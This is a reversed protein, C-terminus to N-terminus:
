FWGSLSPPKSPLVPFKNNLPPGLPNFPPPTWPAPPTSPKSDKRALQIEFEAENLQQQQENPKRDLSGRAINRQQQLLLGAELHDVTGERIGDYISGAQENQAKDYPNSSPVAPKFDGGRYQDLKSAYALNRADLIQQEEPSIGPGSRTFTDRLQVLANQENNLDLFEERNLSGNAAARSLSLNNIGMQADAAQNTFNTISGMAM